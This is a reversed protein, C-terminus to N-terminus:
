NIQAKHNTASDTVSYNTDKFNLVLTQRKQVRATTHDNEKSGNNKRKLIKEERNNFTVGTTINLGNSNPVLRGVRAQIYSKSNSEEALLAPARRHKYM